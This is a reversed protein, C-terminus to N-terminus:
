YASDPAKLGKPLKLDVTPFENTDDRYAYRAYNGMVRYVYNRTESYPIRAVFVDLPLEEGARLWRTVAQPGANYSAAVLEPRGGFINMLYHLYYAGFSINVAPARMLDPDYTAGTAQAIRRATPPIIQMLGVAHAPSVVAPRFASEQRMVGYVLGVPIEYKRAEHRVIEDYPEPYICDWQWETDPSPAHKLVSWTAATQAIQYRRQASALLGYTRCLAEGARGGYLKRIQGEHRLLAAEAEEDLGVRSLRWVKEPLSVSLASAGPVADTSKAPAIWPPIPHGMEALRAAALLAPFSLPRYDIVRGFIEAAEIPKGEGLRAVGMLQLLRARERDSSEREYANKLESFAGAYQKAALRAIPLDARAGDRHKASAGYTKLYKEYATVAASWQGDIFKLRAAQYAAHDAFPGGLQAVAEYKGIAERDRHSRALSKAEYYLYEKRDKGGHSAARAFLQAAREYDSRSRYVAWALLADLEQLNRATNSFAQLATIEAECHTVLGANSFAELRKKREASNLTREPDLTEVQADFGGEPDLAAGDTALWHYEKAAEAKKGEALLTRARIGRARAELELSDNRKKSRLALLVNDALKRASHGSASKEHAEAVLLQDDPDKSTGLFHELLTVDHSRKAADLRLKEAESKFLPWKKLLEDAIRLTLEIDGLELAARARAYRVEPANREDETAADILAAAREFQRRRIADAYSAAQKATVPEDADTKELTESRPELVESPNVPEALSGQTCSPSIGVALSGGGILGILLVSLTGGTPASLVKGSSKAKGGM